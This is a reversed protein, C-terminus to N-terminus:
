HFAMGLTIYFLLASTFPITTHFGTEFEFFEKKFFDTLYFINLGCFPLPFGARAWVLVNIGASMAFYVNNSVKFEPGTKVYIMPIPPTNNNIPVLINLGPELSWSVAYLKTFENFGNARLHVNLFATNFHSNDDETVLLAYGAALTTRSLKITDQTTIDEMLKANAYSIFAAVFSLTLLIRKL